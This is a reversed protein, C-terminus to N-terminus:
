QLTAKCSSLPQRASTQWFRCNKDFRNGEIVQRRYEIEKDLYLKDKIGNTEQQLKYTFGTKFEEDSNFMTVIDVTHQSSIVIM